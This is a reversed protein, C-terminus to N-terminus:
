VKTRKGERVNVAAREKEMAVGEVVMIRWVIKILVGVGAEVNHNVKGRLHMRNSLELRAM